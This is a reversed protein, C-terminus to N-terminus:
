APKKSDCISQILKHASFDIFKIKVTNDLFYYVKKRECDYKLSGLITDYYYIHLTNAYQSDSNWAIEQLNINNQNVGIQKLIFNTTNNDIEIAHSSFSLLLIWVLLTFKM